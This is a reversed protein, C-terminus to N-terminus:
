PQSNPNQPDFPQNPGPLNPAPNSSGSGSGSGSPSGSGSGSVPAPAPAPATGPTTTTPSWPAPPYSTTPPVYSAPPTLQASEWAAAQAWSVETLRLAKPPRPLSAGADARARVRAPKAGTAVSASGALSPVAQSSATLAAGLKPTVATTVWLRAGVPPIVLASATLSGGLRPVVLSTASLGAGVTPAVASSATLRGSLLPPVLAAAALDAGAEVPAAAAVSALARPAPPAPVGASLAAGSDSAIVPAPAAGLNDSILWAAGAIAAVGAVVASVLAGRRHGPEDFSQRQAPPPPEAADPAPELPESSPAFTLPELPPPPAAQSAGVSVLEAVPQEVEVTTPVPTTLLGAALRRETPTTTFAVVQPERALGKIVVESDSAAIHVDAGVALPVGQPDDLLLISTGDGGIEVLDGLLSTAARGVEGVGCLFTAHDGQIATGASWTALILAAQGFVDRSSVGAVELCIAPAQEDLGINTPRALVDGYHHVISQLSQVLETSEPPLANIVDWMLPPEPQHWQWELATLTDSLTRRSLPDLLTGRAALLGRLILARHQENDLVNISAHGRGVQVRQGGLADVAQALPGDSEGLVVPRIGQACLGLLWRRTLDCHDGIVLARPRNILRQEYWWRPDGCVAVGTFADHGLPVACPRVAPAPAVAEVAVEDYPLPALRM